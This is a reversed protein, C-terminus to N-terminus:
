RKLQVGARERDWYLQPNADAEQKLKYKEVKNSLNRPLEDVFRVFRPVMFYSLNRAAFEVLDRESLAQGPKRSVSIGVEEDVDSVKVAFAAADAVAPHALIAQEVEFASVNEGRRRISDKKRDVFWLYGDEDFYGRDGTHFWANRMAELTKEAMNYYGSSTMWPVLSRIVIEGPEGPPCEIDDDDFVRVDWGRRVRGASGLKGVPDSLTFAIPTGYDTLGFATILRLGFREEFGLAFKPIPNTLAMRVRHKRDEPSPPQTWLFSVMSGLLNIITCGHERVDPWFRTVSYRKSLVISADVVLAIYVSGQLANTHFMPLCVYFVDTQRYGFTEANSIGGFLARAHTFLVGKSPGTTGSTYSIFALDSHKVEVPVPREAAQELARMDSTPLKAAAATHVGSPLVLVRSVKPLGPQVEDFRELFAADCAFVTSDSQAVFYALLQGRAAANVLVAVAGVKGLAFYLQLQEPSNEMMVAVHTGKGIGLDLLGNAMRTSIRDIDRWSYRRGDPAYTMFLKDGLADAKMALVRGIHLDRIDYGFWEGRKWSL